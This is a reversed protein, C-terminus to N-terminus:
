KGIMMVWVSDRRHFHGERQQQHQDIGGWTLLQVHTDMRVVSHYTDDIRRYQAEAVQEIRICDSFRYRQRQGKTQGEAEGM